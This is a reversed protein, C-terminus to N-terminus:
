NAVARQAALEAFAERFPDIHNRHILAAAEIAQRRDPTMPAVARAPRGGWIWGSHLVQRPLTVSGPALIVDSQVHTGAAVFSSLGVMSGDDIRCDQLTVNQGVTVGSGITLRSSMAYALCNDQLNSGAGVAIGHRGGDLRAGFWVSADAALELSGEVQATIAVFGGERPREALRLPPAAPEGPANRVRARMLLLEGPELTRVVAAPNGRCLAGAPLEAGPPVVSNREVVCGAGIRAGELVVVGDELVCRDGIRCARLAAHRAVTVGQGILTLPALAHGGHLTSREGLFFDDGIRVEFADGRIVGHAGLHAGAGIAVRGSVIAATGVRRPPAAFDPVQDGYGLCLLNPLATDKM